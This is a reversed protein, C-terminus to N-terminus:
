PCNVGLQLHAGWAAAHVIHASATSAGTRSATDGIGAPAALVLAVIATAAQVGLQRSNLYCLVDTLNLWLQHQGCSAAQAVWNSVRLRHRRLAPPTGSRRCACPSPPTPPVTRPPPAARRAPGSCPRRRSTAPRARCARGNRAAPQAEWGQHCADDLVPEADLATPRHTAVCMGGDDGIDERFLSKSTSGHRDCNCARQLSRLAASTVRAICAPPLPPGVTASWRPLTAPCRLADCRGDSCWVGSPNGPLRDAQQRRSSTMYPAATALPRVSTPAGKVACCRLM